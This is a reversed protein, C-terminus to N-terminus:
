LVENVASEEVGYDVWNTTYRETGVMYDIKVQSKSRSNLLATEEQTFHWVYRGEALTATDISRSIIDRGNQKIRLEIKTIESIDVMSPKYSICPTTWRALESM